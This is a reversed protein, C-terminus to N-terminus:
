AVAKRYKCSAVQRVYGTSVGFEKALESANSFKGPTGAITFTRYRARIESIAEDPVKITGGSARGKPVMDRVNDRQTGAFLHDPNVCLPNDCRHCIVSGEATRGAALEWAVRHALQVRGSHWIQGYGASTTAGTWEICGSEAVAMKKAMREHIGPRMRRPKPNLAYSKRRLALRCTESCYSRPPGPKTHEVTAGCNLCKASM